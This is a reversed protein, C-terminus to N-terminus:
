LRGEKESTGWASRSALANMTNRCAIPPTKLSGDKTGSRSERSCCYPDNPEAGELVECWEAAPLDSDPRLILCLEYEGGRVCWRGSSPVLM